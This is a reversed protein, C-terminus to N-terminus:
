KRHCRCYQSPDIVTIHLRLTKM